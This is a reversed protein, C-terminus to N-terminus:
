IKQRNHIYYNNYIKMAMGNLYDVIGELMKYEKTTKHSPAVDDGKKTIDSIGYSFNGNRIMEVALDGYATNDPFDIQYIPYKDAKELMQSILEIMTRINSEYSAEDSSQNM